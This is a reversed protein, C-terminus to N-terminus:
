PGQLYPIINKNRFLKRQEIMVAIIKIPPEFLISAYKSNLPKLLYNNKRFLLQRFLIPSEKSATIAIVYDNPAPCKNPSIIIIDRPKFSDSNIKESVMSNDELYFGVKQKHKYFDSINQQFWALFSKPSPLIPITLQNNKMSKGTLIWDVTVSCTNSINVLLNTDAYSGRKNKEYDHITQQTTKVEKALQIQTLGKAKRALRLRYGKTETYSKKM